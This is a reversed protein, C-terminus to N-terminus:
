KPKSRRSFADIREEESAEKFELEGAVMYIKGEESSKSITFPLRTQYLPNKLGYSFINQYECVIYYTKTEELNAINSPCFKIPPDNNRLFTQRISHSRNGENDMLSSEVEIAPINGVNFIEFHSFYDKTSGEWIDKEHVSKQILRPQSTLLRQERMEKAMKESAEAQRYASLAYFGTVLVLGFMILIQGLDAPGIARVNLVLYVCLLFGVTLALIAARR